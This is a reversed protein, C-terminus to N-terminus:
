CENIESRLITKKDNSNRNYQYDTDVKGLSEFERKLASLKKEYYDLILELLERDAVLTGGFFVCDQYASIEYKNGGFFKLLFKKYKGRQCTKEECLVKRLTYTQDCLKQMEEKLENGKQLEEGTM